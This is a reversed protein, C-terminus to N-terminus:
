VRGQTCTLFPFKFKKKKPGLFYDKVDGVEDKVSAKQPIRSVDEDSPLDTSRNVLTNSLHGSHQSKSKVKQIM